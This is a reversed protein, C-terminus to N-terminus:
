KRFPPVCNYNSCLDRCCKLTGPCNYDFQCRRVPPQCDSPVYAPLVACEGPKYIPVCSFSSGKCPQASCNYVNEKCVYGDRCHGCRSGPPPCVRTNPTIEQYPLTPDPKGCCCNGSGVDDPICVTNDPCNSVDNPVNPNCAM